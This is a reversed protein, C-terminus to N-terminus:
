GAMRGLYYFSVKEHGIPFRFDNAEQAVPAAVTGRIQGADAAHFVRGANAHHANGARTAHAGLKGQGGQPFPGIRYPHGASMRAFAMVQFTIVVRAALERQHFVQKFM